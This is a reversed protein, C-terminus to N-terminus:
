FLIMIICSGKLPALPHVEETISPLTHVVASSTVTCQQFCPENLIISDTVHAKNHNAINGRNESQQPKKKIM